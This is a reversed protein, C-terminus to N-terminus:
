EYSMVESPSIDSALISRLQKVARFIRNKVTNPNIGLIESIEDISHGEFHKLLFAVRLEENLTSLAQKTMRAMDNQWRKNEPQSQSEGKANDVENEEFSRNQHHRTNSRQMDIASNVTVSYLWTSLKSREDFDNIKRFIKIFVEQVCDEAMAQDNLIRYAAAFLRRSYTAVLKQFAETKGSKLASILLQEQEMCNVSVSCNLNPKSLVWINKNFAECEKNSGPGNLIQVM